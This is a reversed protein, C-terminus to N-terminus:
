IPVCSRLFKSWFENRHHPRIKGVLEDAQVVLCLKRIEAQVVVPESVVGKDLTGQSWV